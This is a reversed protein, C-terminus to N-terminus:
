QLTIINLPLTQFTSVCLFLYINMFCYPTHSWLHQVTCMIKSLSRPFEKSSIIEINRRLSLSITSLLSHLVGPLSANPDIYLMVIHCSDSPDCLLGKYTLSLIRSRKPLPNQTSFHHPLIWTKSYSPGSKRFFASTLWKLSHPM